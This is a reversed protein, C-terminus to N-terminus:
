TVKEDEIIKINSSDLVGIDDLYNQLIGKNYAQCLEQPNEIMEKYQQMENQYALAGFLVLVIMALIIWDQISPKRFLKKMNQKTLGRNIKTVQGCSPCVEDTENWKEKFTKREM